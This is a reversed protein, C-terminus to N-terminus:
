EMKQNRSYGLPAEDSGVLYNVSTTVVPALSNRVVIVRLGNALTARLVEGDAAPAACPAAAAALALSAILLPRM